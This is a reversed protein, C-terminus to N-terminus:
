AARRSRPERALSVYHIVQGLGDSVACVITDMECVTGDRRRQSLTGRWLGARDLADIVEREATTSSAAHLTVSPRGHLDKRDFGTMRECAANVYVITGHADTIVVAEAAQELAAALRARDAETRKQETVDLASVCVGSVSGGGDHVPTFRGEFFYEESSHGHIAGESTVVKGTLAEAFHGSFNERAREPVFDLLARGRQLSADGVLMKSFKVANSNFEAIRGDRDLL